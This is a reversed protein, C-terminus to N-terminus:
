WDQMDKLMSELVILKEQICAKKTYSDLLEKLYYSLPQMVNDLSDQYCQLQEQYVKKLDNLEEEVEM